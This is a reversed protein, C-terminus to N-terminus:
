STKTNIYNQFEEETMPSVMNIEDRLQRRKSKWDGYESCDYGEFAKLPIYDTEHLEEILNVIYQDKTILENM